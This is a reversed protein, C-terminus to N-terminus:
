FEFKDLLMYAKLTTCSFIISRTSCDSINTRCVHRGFSFKASQQNQLFILSRMLNGERSQPWWPFTIFLTNRNQISFEKNVDFDGSMKYHTNESIYCPSRGLVVTFSLGQTFRIPFDIAIMIQKVHQVKRWSVPASVAPLRRFHSLLFWIPIKTRTSVAYTYISPLM